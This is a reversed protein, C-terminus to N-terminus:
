SCRLDDNASPSGNQLEEPAMNQLKRQAADRFLDDWEGREPPDGQGELSGMEEVTTPSTTNLYATGM